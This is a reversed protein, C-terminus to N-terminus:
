ELDAIIVRTLDRLWQHARDGDLHANWSQYIPLPAVAFPLPRTVLGMERVLSACSRAAVTCLLDCDRVLCLAAASTPASAVIRRRLGQAALADDLPDRLQGRRSVLVHRANSFREASLRRRAGAHDRRLAVVLVDEGIREQRQESVHRKGSGIDLDIPGQKPDEIDSAHEALFRVAVAPAQERLRILLAKALSPLLADHCRITFTRELEAPVLPGEPSLLVRARRVLESVESRVARARASAVMARGSRVLIPDGTAERIRALTRSMAPQSLHLRTAAGGVSGEDLLADLAALLNMDVHMHHM